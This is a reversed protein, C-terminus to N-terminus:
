RTRSEPASPRAFPQLDRVSKQHPPSMRGISEKIRKRDTKSPAHVYLPFATRRSPKKGNLYVLGCALHDLASRANHVAGGAILGWRPEPEFLIEECRGVHWLRGQADKEFRSDVTFYDEGHEDYFDEIEQIASDLHEKSRDLKMRASALSTKADM